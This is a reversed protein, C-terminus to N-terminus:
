SLLRTVPTKIESMLLAGVGTQRCFAEIEGPERAMGGHDGTLECIVAVPNLGAERALHVSTETHGRREALLGERARLVQVHGPYIWEDLSPPIRALEWAAWTRATISSHDDGNGTWDVTHWFPSNVGFSRPQCEPIGIADLWSGLVAVCYVGGCRRLMLSVIESTLTDAPCFLDAESERDADVLLVPAGQRVRQITKAVSIFYDGM